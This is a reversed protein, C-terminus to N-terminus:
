TTFDASNLSMPNGLNLQNNYNYTPNNLVIGNGSPPPIPQFQTTLLLSDFNNLDINNINATPNSKTPSPPNQQLLDL